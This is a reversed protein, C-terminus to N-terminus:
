EKKSAAKKKAPEKKSAAKKAPEKAPEKKAAAKKAPKEKADFKAQLADRNGELETVRKNLSGLWQRLEAIEQFANPARSAKTRAPLVPRSRKPASRMAEQAAKTPAPHVDGADLAAQLDKSRRSLNHPIEVIKDYPVAMGIDALMTGDKKLGKVFM